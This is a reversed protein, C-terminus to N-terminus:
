QAEGTTSKTYDSRSDSGREPSQFNEPDGSEVKEELIAGIEDEVSLLHRQVAERAADPDESRIAEFISRHEAMSREPRGPIDWIAGRERVLEEGISNLLDALVLNGCAESVARHFRADTDVLSPVMGARIAAESHELALEIQALDRGTARRAALDAAQCELGRRVEFLDKVRRSHHRVWDRWESRAHDASAAPVRVFTGSGHRIEVLGLAHLFHVAERVTGRSVRLQESLIRESPLRDGPQLEGDRILDTLREVVQQQLSVSEVPELKQALGTM